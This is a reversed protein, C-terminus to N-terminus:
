FLLGMTPGTVIDWDTIVERRTIRLTGDTDQLLDRRCGTYTHNDAGSHSYFLLFNSYVRLGGDDLPEVEVNTIMRRTRPPPSEAWANVKFPRMARLALQPFREHRLPSSSPGAGDLEREVNLYAETERAKMDPLPVHRSPMIYEIRQDLLGLWQQFCRDDLLRAERYYFQEIRCILQPDLTTAIM